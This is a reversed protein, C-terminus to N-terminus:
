PQNGGRQLGKRIEEPLPSGTNFGEMQLDWSFNRISQLQIEGNERQIQYVGMVQTQPNIMIVTTAQGEHELVHTILGASTAGTSVLHNALLPEAEASWSWLGVGLALGALVCWLSKNM